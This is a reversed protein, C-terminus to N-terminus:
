GLDGRFADSGKYDGGITSTERVKGSRGRNGGPPISARRVERAAEVQPINYCGEERVSDLSSM